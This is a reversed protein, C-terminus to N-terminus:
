GPNPATDHEFWSLRERLGVVRGIIVTAPSDVGAAAAERPLRALASALVRQRATTGREIIAAPLDPAVGHELLGTVLADLASVGMYVVLTQYDRVLVEWDVDLTGDRLHATIFLCSHAHDRHTLPIGAYAACGLAATIGPVVQFDIGADALREIEEGGRGFMFPDGGKLRAVRKGSGAHHVLLKNIDEQTVAHCAKAKGVYIREADRRCFDLIDAGVLRDYVIVDALQMLRLARFTLLDPDGPGTGILFVEGVVPAEAPTASLATEIAQLAQQRRGAFFLEAIPGELLMEWFRRRRAGDPLVARVRERLSGLLAALEGYAPPILSELKARLMRALVPANGGTGIAIVVPSRDVISPMIASSDSPQDVANVFIGRGQAARSVERNTAPDNTAAIVLVHGDVDSQRFPRETVRVSGAAALERVAPGLGTAVVHVAAGARMLLAIKRAAVGGAGVVLCPRSRIALFLPLFDM